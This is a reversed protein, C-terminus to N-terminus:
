LRQLIKDIVGEESHAYVNLLITPSHGLYRAVAKVEMMNKCVKLMKSAKSHRICHPTIRKINSLAIYKEFLHRFSAKSLPLAPDLSSHFMYHSIDGQEKKYDNLAEKVEKRLKCIRYSEKTKLTDSLLFTKQSAFLLQRCITITGKKGDYVDWSLGLFESLRAGLELFLTFMIKHTKDEIVDLFRQEEEKSWIPREKKRKDEPINELLSLIDQYEEGPIYKWKFACSSLNRLIGIIRNKWSPCLKEDYIISEYIAEIHAFTFIEKVLSDKNLLFYKHYVTTAQAISSHRVHRARYELYRKFFAEVSLAKEIKCKMEEIKKSLLAEKHAIADELSPYGVGHIHIRKSDITKVYDIYYTANRADFYIGIPHPNNNNQM